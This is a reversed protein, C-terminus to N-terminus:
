SYLNNFYRDVLYYNDWLLRLATTRLLVEM